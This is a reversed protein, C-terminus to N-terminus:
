YLFREIFKVSQAGALAFLTTKMTKGVWCFLLFKWLPYKLAGAAMGAIDFLPNPIFSLVLITLAGNRRMWATIQEYRARNEVLARGSFGALYGTLEGLTTGVGAVLGVLVPKLVAGMAFVAALSPAPLVLTANGALSVLFVGPYGYAAFQELRDRFYVILGTVALVILLAFIRLVVMRVRQARDQALSEAQVEAM